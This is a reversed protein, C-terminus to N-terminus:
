KILCYIIFFDNLIKLTIIKSKRLSIKDYSSNEMFNYIKSTIIFSFILNYMFLTKNYLFFVNPLKLFYKKNKQDIYRKFLYLSDNYFIIKTRLDLDSTRIKYM